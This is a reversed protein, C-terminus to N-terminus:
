RKILWEKKSYYKGHIGYVSFIGGYRGEKYAYGDLNHLFNNSDCFRVGLGNDKWEFIKAEKNDEIVYYTEGFELKRSEHKKM